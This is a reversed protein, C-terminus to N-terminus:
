RAPRAGAPSCSRYVQRATKPRALRPEAGRASRPSRARSVAGSTAQSMAPALAQISVVATEPDVVADLEDAPHLGFGGHLEPTPSRIQAATLTEAERAAGAQDLEVIGLRLWEDLMSRPHVDTTVSTILQDFGIGEPGGLHQIADPEIRLPRVRADLVVFENGLGNMKRFPLTATTM